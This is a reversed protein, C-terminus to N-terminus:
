PKCSWITYRAGTTSLCRIDDGGSGCDGSCNSSNCKCSSGDGPGSSSGSGAGCGGVLFKMEPHQLEKGYLEKLKIKSIVKM